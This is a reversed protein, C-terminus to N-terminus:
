ASERRLKGLLECLAYDVFIKDDEASERPAILTDGPSRPTLGEKVARELAEEWTSTDFTALGIANDDTICMINWWM